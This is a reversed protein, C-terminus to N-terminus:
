DKMLRQLMKEYILEDGQKYGSHRFMVTGSKDMIWISPEASILDWVSGKELVAIIPKRISSKEFMAIAEQKLDSRNLIFIFVVNDEPLFREYLNRVNPIEQKCSGCAPSFFNIFMVRGNFRRIDIPSNELTRLSLNPIKKVHRRRYEAIFTTSDKEKGFKDKVIQDIAVRYGTEQEEIITDKMLAETIHNWGQEKKGNGYEIIGLRLCDDPTPSSLYNRAKHVTEFANKLQGKKWL